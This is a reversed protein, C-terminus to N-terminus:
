VAASCLPSRAKRTAAAPALLILEPFQAHLRELLGAADGRLTGLDAILIGCRGGVLLDVAADASQAHWIAHEAGSAERLTALLGADATLVVVDLVQGPLGSSAQLAALSADHRTSQM